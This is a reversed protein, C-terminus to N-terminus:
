SYHWCARIDEMQKQWCGLCTVNYNFSVSLWIISVSLWIISVSLWIVSVSLLLDNKRLLWAHVGCLEHTYPSFSLYVQYTYIQKVVNLSWYLAIIQFYINAVNIATKRNWFMAFFYRYLILASFTVSDQNVQMCTYILVIM